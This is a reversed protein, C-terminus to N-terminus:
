FSMAEIKAIQKRLSALKRAKMEEAKKIAEEQTSYWEGKHYHSYSWASKKDEISIAGSETMEGTVEIIGRSFLHKVVWVKVETIEEMRKV